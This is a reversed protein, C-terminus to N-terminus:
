SDKIASSQTKLFATAAEYADVGHAKPREIIWQHHKIAANFDNNDSYLKALKAHVKYAEGWDLDTANKLGTELIEIVVNSPKKQAQYVNALHSYATINGADIAIAEKLSQQAKEFDPPTSTAAIAATNISKAASLWHEPWPKLHPRHQFVIWQQSPKLNNLELVNNHLRHIGNKGELIEDVTPMGQGGKETVEPLRYHNPISHQAKLADPEVIDQGIIIDVDGIETQEQLNIARSDGFHVIRKGALEIIWATNVPLFGRKRISDAYGHETAVGRVKISGVQHVGPEQYIPVDEPFYYSADHDFHPHTILVADATIDKPYEYGLWIRSNYPDIVVSSGDTDVFRFSAHGIYEIRATEPTKKIVSNASTIFNTILLFLLTINKM